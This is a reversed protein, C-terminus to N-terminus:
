GRRNTLLGIVVGVGLSLIISEYPYRRVYDDAASMGASARDQVHDLAERGSELAAELRHRAETVKEDAIDTTANILARADKALTRLDHDIASPTEYHTKM